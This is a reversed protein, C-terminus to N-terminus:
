PLGSLIRTIDDWDSPRWIYVEAPTARLANLWERQPSILRGRESKLEAFILRGGKVLTLDPFGRASRRSNYPHYSRWGLAHALELVQAQFRKEDLTGIAATRAAAGDMYAGADIEGWAATRADMINM